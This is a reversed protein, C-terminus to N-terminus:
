LYNINIEKNKRTGSLSMQRVVQPVRVVPQFGSSYEIRQRAPLWHLIDRMIRVHRTYMCAYRTYHKHRDYGSFYHTPKLKQLIRGHLNEVNKHRLLLSATIQHPKFGYFSGWIRGHVTCMFKRYQRADCKYTQAQCILQCISVFSM